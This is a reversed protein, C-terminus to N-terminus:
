SLPLASRDMNDKSFLIRLTTNKYRGVHMASGHRIIKM